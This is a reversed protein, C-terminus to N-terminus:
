HQGRVLVVIIKEIEQLCNWVARNHDMDHAGHPETSFARPSGVFRRPCVHGRGLPDCLLRGWERPPLFDHARSPIARGALPVLSARRRTKVEFRRLLVEFRCAKGEFRRLKGEFPRLKGEFDLWKGEFPLLKPEFPLLKGEFPRLMKRCKGPPLRRKSRDPPPLLRSPPPSLLGSGVESRRGGVEGGWRGGGRRSGETGGHNM